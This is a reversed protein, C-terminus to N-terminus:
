PHHLYFFFILNSSPELLLRLSDIQFLFHDAPGTNPQIKDVRRKVGVKKGVSVNDSKM